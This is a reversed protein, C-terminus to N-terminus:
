GKGNGKIRDTGSQWRIVFPIPCVLDLGRERLDGYWGGPSGINYIHRQYPLVIFSSWRSLTTLNGIPMTFLHPTSTIFTPSFLYQSKNIWTTSKISCILNLILYNTRQGRIKILSSHAQFGFVLTAGFSM